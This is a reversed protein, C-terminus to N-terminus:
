TLKAAAAFILRIQHIHQPRDLNPQNQHNSILKAIPTRLCFVNKENKM